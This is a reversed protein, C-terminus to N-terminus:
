SVAYANIITVDATSGAANTGRVRLSVYGARAPNAVIFTWRSGSRSVRLAAWTKGGNDSAWVQVDRVAVNGSLNTFWMPVTTKTGRPESNRESLGGPVIRPWFSYIYDYYGGAFGDARAPFNWSLRVSKSLGAGPGRSAAIVLRYWHTASSLNAAVTGDTGQGLLKSGEYLWADHTATPMGLSYPDGAPDVLLWNGGRAGVTLQSGAIDAQIQASPGFVASGFTQAFHQGARWSPVNVRGLADCGYDGFGACQTWQYGPTVHFDLHYPAKGSQGYATAPLLVGPGPM